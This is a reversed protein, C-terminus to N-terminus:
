LAAAAAAALLSCYLRSPLLLPLNDTCRVRWVPWSAAAKAQTGNYLRDAPPVRGVGLVCRAAPGGQWPPAINSHAITQTPRRNYPESRPRHAPSPSLHASPPPPPPPPSSCCCCCLPFPSSISSPRTLLSDTRLRWWPHIQSVVSEACFVQVWGMLAWPIWTLKRRDGHHSGAHQRMITRPSQTRM